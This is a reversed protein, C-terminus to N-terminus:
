FIAMQCMLAERHPLHPPEYCRSSLIMQYHLKRLDLYLHSVDMLDNQLSLFVECQDVEIAHSAVFFTM